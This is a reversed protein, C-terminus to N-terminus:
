NKHKKIMSYLVFVDSFCDSFHDNKPNKPRCRKRKKTCDKDIVGEFAIGFTLAVFIEKVPAADDRVKVGFHLRALCSVTFPM